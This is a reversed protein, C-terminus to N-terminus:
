VGRARAKRGYAAYAADWLTTLARSSTEKIARGSGSTRSYGASENLLTDITLARCLTSVLSPPTHRQLATSSVHAAATTGLAGRVVILTRPAFVHDGLTHPALVSGDWGRKVILNNAAVDLILMREAGITITEGPTFTAGSQVGVSTTANQGDINASLTQGTDLLRKDTVLMREDECRILSGVGIITSNSVDVDIETSDLPEIVTGAAVEDNSHGFLGVVSIDNQWSPGSGFAASTSINLDIRDYPPGQNPYLIYRSAPIAVTGTLLASVSIVEQDDLWLRWARSHQRNPWDFRRTALLPYFHRHFGGEIERTSAAIAEDIRANDRATDKADLALKVSERTTYWVEAM